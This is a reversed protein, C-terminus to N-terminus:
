RLSVRAEAKTYDVAKKEKVYLPHTYPKGEAMCKFWHEFPLFELSDPSWSYGQVKSSLVHIKKSQSRLTGKFDFSAQVLSVLVKVILSIRKSLGNDYRNRYYYKKLSEVMKSIKDHNTPNLSLDVQIVLIRGFLQDEVMSRLNYICKDSLKNDTTYKTNFLLEAALLQLHYSAIIFRPTEEKNIIRSLDLQYKSFETYNSSWYCIKLMLMDGRLIDIPSTVHCLYKLAVSRALSYSGLVFYCLSSNLLAISEMQKLYFMSKSSNNRRLYNLELLCLQYDHSNYYHASKIFHYYLRIQSSQSYAKKINDSSLYKRIGDEMKAYANEDRKSEFYKSIYVELRSLCISLLETDMILRDLNNLEAETGFQSVYRRKRKLVYILLDYSEIKRLNSELKRLIDISYTRCGRFQLLDHYQLISLQNLYTRVRIPYRYAEISDADFLVKRLVMELRNLLSYFQNSISNHYVKWCAEKTTILPNEILIWILKSLKTERNSAYYKLKAKEERTLGVMLKKLRDFQIMVLM